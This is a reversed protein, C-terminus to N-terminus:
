WKIWIYALLIKLVTRNYVEETNSQLIDGYDRIEKRYAAEVKTKKQNEEVQGLLFLPKIASFM